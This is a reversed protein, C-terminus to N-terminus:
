VAATGPHLKVNKCHPGRRELSHEQHTLSNHKNRHYYTAMSRAEGGGRKSDDLARKPKGRGEKEMTM